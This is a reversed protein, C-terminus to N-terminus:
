THNPPDFSCVKVKTIVFNNGILGQNCAVSAVDCLYSTYFKIDKDSYCFTCQSTQKIFGFKM